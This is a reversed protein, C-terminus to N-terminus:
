SMREKVMKIWTGVIRRTIYDVDWADVEHWGRVGMRHDDTFTEPLLSPGCCQGWETTHNIGYGPEGETLTYRRDYYRVEDTGPWFMFRFPTGNAGILDFTHTGPEHEM